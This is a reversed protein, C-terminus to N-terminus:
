EEAKGSTKRWKQIKEIGRDYEAVLDMSSSFPNVNRLLSTAGEYLDYGSQILMSPGPVDLDDFGGFDIAAETLGAQSASGPTYKRIAPEAKVWELISCM